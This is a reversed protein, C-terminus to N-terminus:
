FDKPIDSCRWGSTHKSPAAEISSSVPAASDQSLPVPHSREQLSKDVGVESYFVQFLPLCGRHSCHRYKELLDLAQPELEM